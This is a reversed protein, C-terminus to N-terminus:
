AGIVGRFVDVQETVANVAISKTRSFEHTYVASTVGINSHGMTSSIENMSTGAANAISAFSHRLDHFRIPKMGTALIHKHFVESLYNPAFPMGNKKVCVYGSDVYYNKSALQKMRENQAKTLVAIVAEPILFSRNSKETKPQKEIIKSGAKTRANCVHLLRNNFDIDEWRLGLVEGRRLGLLSALTVPLELQTDKVSELLEAIEAANMCSKQRTTKRQREMLALPNNSILQKRVADLFISKLLERHKKITSLSLSKAKEIEYDQINQLTINQIPTEKFYPKIHNKLINRYGYITTEELELTKYRLYNEAADALTLKSPIVLKGAKRDQEHQKLRRQAERKNDTTFYTKVYKGGEGKGWNLCVYYLKREEDLSINKSITKRSMYIGGKYNRLVHEM